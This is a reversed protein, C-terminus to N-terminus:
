KSKLSYVGDWNKSPPNKMFEHCRKVYTLSPGDDKDIKLGERFLSLAKKWDRNRFSELGQYYKEMLSYMRDPLSGKKGLLEYIDVADKKGIVRITDLKRAEIHEKVKEYTSGSIMAYTQYFKNAGELRSALNVSDGMCTYDMRAKSGMNGVVAEGTNMGMRVYLEDKGVKRWLEQMERLKRKMEIAAMCCKFAHDEFHHPAGYFAIIADGEYKDVTGSFRLIIDTMESLYENLLTVLDKPKLKESITSFGAVDSFFITIERSEGGLELAGPNGLIVEIVEPSLYRGFVGKIYRKQSEENIFKIGAISISPLVLALNFGLQDFWIDLFIFFCIAAVNISLMGAVIAFLGKKADLRQIIFGMFLSLVLMIFYNPFAGIIKIFRKNVITNVTNHYTGVMAYEEDLPIAGIDIGGIATLGTLILNDKLSEIKIVMEIMTADEKMIKIEELLAPDKKDKVLDEKAKISEKFSHLYGDKIKKIKKRLNSVKAGLDKRESNQKSARYKVQAADLDAYIQGLEAAGQPGGEKDFFNNVDEAINDNYELLMYFPLIKFSGKERKGPGAWNVYFMGESNIPIELDGKDHTMPNLANKLVIKKGPFVEIGDKSIGCADALMM